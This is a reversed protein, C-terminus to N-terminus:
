LVLIKNGTGEKPLEFSGTVGTRPSGVGEEQKGRLEVYKDRAAAADGM